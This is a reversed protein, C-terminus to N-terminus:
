LVLHSHKKLEGNNSSVYVGPINLPAGILHEASIAQSRGPMLKWRNQYQENIDVRYTDLIPHM